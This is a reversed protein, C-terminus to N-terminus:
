TRKCETLLFHDLVNHLAKSATNDGEDVLLSPIFAISGVSFVAGGEPVDFYVMDARIDTDNPGSTSGHYVQLLEEIARQTGEPHNESSALVVTGPPTGLRADVRDLEDGAAGGLLLGREGILDGEIGEFFWPLIRKAAPNVVFPRSGGGQAAMGVGVLRQPARGRLRWLGGAEWSSVLDVEGPESAWTRIGAHGRRIEVVPSESNILGTVWYFGNGGLYALKGGNDRFAQLGDLMQSTHYEPHCGTIVVDYDDLVAAGGNHLELDTLVDYEYGAWELWEILYLDGGFGRGCGFTWTRYEPRFDLLPRLGSSYHIGSGDPHTDYLSLGFERGVPVHQSRATAVAEPDTLGFAGEAAFFEILNENGYALYTFTSALFAIRSRRTGSGPVVFLPVTDSDGAATRLEIGYVASPLDSPLADIFLPDWGSDILDTSHFHAASYQDRCERFSDTTADWNPGTVGQNPLNVLRGPSAAGALAPCFYRTAGSRQPALDWVAGGASRVVLAIEHLEKGCLDDLHSGFVVVPASLKGEFNNDARGRSYGKRDVIDRSNRAGFTVQQGTFSVMEDARSATRDSPAYSPDRGVVAVEIGDRSIQLGVFSWARECMVDPCHVEHTRGEPSVVCAVLTGGVMELLVTRGGEGVVEVITQASGAGLDTPHVWAGITFGVHASVPMPLEAVFFSGICGTQSSLPYSGAGTWPITEVAGSVDRGPIPGRGIRVLSVEVSSAHGSAHVAIQQGPEYSMRDLYGALSVQSM